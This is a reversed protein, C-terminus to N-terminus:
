TRKPPAVCGCGCGGAGGASPVVGARASYMAARSASAPFRLCVAMRCMSRAPRSACAHPSARSAALACTESSRAHADRSQAGGLSAMRSPHRINEWGGGPAGVGDGPWHVHREDGHPSADDEALAPLFPRLMREIGRHLMFLRFCRSSARRRTDSPRATTISFALMTLGATPLHVSGYRRSCISKAVMCQRKAGLSVLDNVYMQFSAAWAAYSSSASASGSTSVRRMWIVFKQWLAM